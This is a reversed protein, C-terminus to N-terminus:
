TVTKYTLLRPSSCPLNCYSSTTKTRTATAPATLSLTSRVPSSTVLLSATRRCCTRQFHRRCCVLSSVLLLLLELEVCICLLLRCECLRRHLHTEVELVLGLGVQGVAFHVVVMFVRFAELWSADQRGFRSWTKSAWSCLPCGVVFESCLSSTVQCWM